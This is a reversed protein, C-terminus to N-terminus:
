LAGWVIALGIFLTMQLFFFLLVFDCIYLLQTHKYANFIIHCSVSTVTAIYSINMSERGTFLRYMCPMCALQVHHVVLKLAISFSSVKFM